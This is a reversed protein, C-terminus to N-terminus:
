QYKGSLVLSEIASKKLKGSAEALAPYLSSDTMGPVSNIENFYLEGGATVFFDIRSINGLGLFDALMRAYRRAKRTIKPDFKGKSSIEPTGCGEYKARFDYFSGHTSIIGERSIFRREGDYLAFELECKVNILREIMIDGGSCEYADTYASSFEAASFVPHAGISSGLSRPKIFIPYGLRKEAENRAARANRSAPIFWPATPIGLHEAIIKTYAKDSSIASSAPSSGIYPIHAARLAGQIIGDEGFDGHLLPLAVDAKIIGTESFFGSIGDLMVPYTKKLKQNKWNGSAIEETGGEFFFWNGDDKIGIKLLSIEDTLRSIVAAASAESIRREAGEGGFILALTKKM